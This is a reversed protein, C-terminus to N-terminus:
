VGVVDQSVTREVLKEISPSIPTYRFAIGVTVFVALNLATTSPM